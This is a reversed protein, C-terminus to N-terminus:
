GFTGIELAINFETLQALAAQEQQRRRIERTLVELQGIVAVPEARIAICSM